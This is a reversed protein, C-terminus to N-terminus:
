EERGAVTQRYHLLRGAAYARDRSLSLLQGLAQVHKGFDSPAEAKLGRARGFIPWRAFCLLIGVAALHFLIWNAPPLNFIELGTPTGMAPDRDVIGAGGPGSELFYVDRPVPGIEAILDAALKRHEHNVLPLNLLFSGNAVVIVRGDGRWLRSVLAGEKSDLLIEANAHPELRSHLEIEV